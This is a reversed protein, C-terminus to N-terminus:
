ENGQATNPEVPLSGLLNLKQDAVSLTFINKGQAIYLQGGIWNLITGDGNWRAEGDRAVIGGDDTRYAYRDGQDPTVSVIVRTEQALDTRMGDSTIRTLMSPGSPDSEIGEGPTFTAIWAAGAGYGVVNANEPLQFLERVSGSRDVRLIYRSDKTALVIATKDGDLGLFQPDTYQQGDSGRLAVNWNGGDTLFFGRSDDKASEIHLPPKGQLASIRWGKDKPIEKVAGGPIDMSFLRDRDAKPVSTGFYIQQTSTTQVSQSTSTATNTTVSSTMGLIKNFDFSKDIVPYAVAAALVGLIIVGLWKSIRTPADDEDRHRRRAM